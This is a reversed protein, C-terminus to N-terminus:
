SVVAIKKGISFLKQIITIDPFYTKQETGDEEESVTSHKPSLCNTTPTVCSLYTYSSVSVAVLIITLFYRINVKKM